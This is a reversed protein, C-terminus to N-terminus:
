RRAAIGAFAGRRTASRGGPAHRLPGDGSRAGAAAQRERASLLLERGLLTGPQGADHRRHERYEINPFPLSGLYNIEEDFVKAQPTPNINRGNAESITIVRSGSIILSEEAINPINLGLPIGTLKTTDMVVRDGALDYHGCVLYGAMATDTKAEVTLYCRQGITGM